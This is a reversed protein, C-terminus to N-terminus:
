EPRGFPYLAAMARAHKQAGTLRPVVEGTIKKRFPDDRGAPLKPGLKEIGLYNARQRDIKSRIPNEEANKQWHCYKHVPGLNWEADIGGLHLPIVHDLDWRAGREAQIKIGCRLCIGEANDFIRIRARRSLRIRDTM